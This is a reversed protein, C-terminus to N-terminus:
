HSLKRGTQLFRQEARGSGAAFREFDLEGVFQPTYEPVAFRRGHLAAYEDHMRERAEAPSNTAAGGHVQHFTGEGLIMWPRNASLIVARQWLDLNVLGGGPAAFREDLGGLERWLSRDLFLGNTESICGFWGAASSGGLVSIDFLRYGDSEWPVSALLADEAAADYGEDVSQMQVKPGLHFGLTAIVKSRDSTWADVARQVVGPSALRAGDIWLGLLDCEFTEIARNIATAPSQRVVDPRIVRAGPLVSQLRQEDVAPTSGNDLVIVDWEVDPRTRQYQKSLTFLTRPLERAMNFACCLISIKPARVGNV